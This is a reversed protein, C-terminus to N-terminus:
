RARRGGHECLATTSPDAALEKAAPLLRGDFDFLAQNEWANGSSPDEPDWGNGEVATWAPEWYVTGIGRGGPASAVVDQVARLAAAQGAPTAPYGSVLEDPLNMINEWAPSDDELTFPYATEVVLVDRDYRQSLTSVAGQLDALSGHWYGYYSLGIVDFPVSRATVEDFWWTLSGIGNNINTLHLIVRTDPDVERVAQAGATLFAALNDWQAGVVGDTTDVDWTQGWPWLMGPNIENGVQVYDATIGEAALADLVDRTHDHVSQQLEAPSQGAWASPVGQAGPDTWRDSYHFDVLLGMGAAKIRKATAVVHERDNYGDAPDVWVKLRGVNMGADALIRVADGAKGKATKYTAGHDENKALGSLDGGRVDRSVQGPTLTVDDVNAWAGGPGRTAIEVTCSGGRVKASVSLRVWADDQETLPTTTVDDVGCGTLGLTTADLAGGSKVWASVTWWGPALRKVTQRTRVDYASASWHALRQASGDHGPGEVKAAGTAGTVKWGTLGAEFGGNVLAGVQQPAKDRAQPGSGPTAAAPTAAALALVGALALASLRPRPWGFAPAM